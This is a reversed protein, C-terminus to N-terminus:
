SSCKKRADRCISARHYQETSCLCAGDMVHATNKRRFIIEELICNSSMVDYSSDAESAIEWSTQTQSTYFYRYLKVQYRHCWGTSLELGPYLATLHALADVLGESGWGHYCLRLFAVSSRGWASERWKKTKGCLWVGTWRSCPIFDSGMANNM